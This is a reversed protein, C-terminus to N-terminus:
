GSVDTLLNRVSTYGPQNSNKKKKLTLRHMVLVDLLLLIM